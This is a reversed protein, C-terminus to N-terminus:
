IVLEEKFADFYATLLEEKRPMKSSGRLSAKLSGAVAAFRLAKLENKTVCYVVNFAADFADGAGTTDVVSAQRVADVEIKASKNILVAGYSGRKVIIMKTKGTLLEEPSKAVSMLERENLFAWDAAAIAEVTERPSKYSYAGPDYSITSNRLRSAAERVVQPRVSAFHVHDGEPVDQPDILDSSGRYSIITRGSGGSTMIIVAVNISREVVKIKSIDVGFARISDILGLREMIPDVASVLTVPYGLSAIMVAYNTAAGGLGLWIDKAIANEGVEPYKDLLLSIDLNVNGM